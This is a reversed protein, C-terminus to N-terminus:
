HKLALLLFAVPNKQPLQNPIQQPISPNRTSSNLVPPLASLALLTLLLMIILMFVDVYSLLWSPQRTDTQQLLEEINLSAHHKSYPSGSM